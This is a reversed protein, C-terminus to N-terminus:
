NAKILPGKGSAIISVGSGYETLEANYISNEIWIVFRGGAFFGNDINYELTKNEEFDLTGSLAGPTIFVHKHDESFSITYEDGNEVNFYFSEDITSGDIISEQIEEVVSFLFDNGNIDKFSVNEDSSGVGCGLVILSFFILLWIRNLKIM